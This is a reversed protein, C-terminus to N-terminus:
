EIIFEIRRNRTRDANTFVGGPGSPGFKPEDEGRGIAQIREAELGLSVLQQKVSNARAQSLQMNVDNAGVDDTHGVISLKFGQNAPQNLYEVLNKMNTLDAAQKNKCAERATPTKKSECKVFTSMGSEFEISQLDTLIKVTEVKPAPKCGSCNKTGAVTPCKDLHDPIGDRDVDLAVGSGDVQIKERKTAKESLQALETATWGCESAQLGSLDWKTDEKDFSDPVGDGDSDRKLAEASNGMQQELRVIKSMLDNIREDQSKNVALLEALKADNAPAAVPQHRTADYAHYQQLYTADWYRLDKKKGGLAFVFSLNISSYRDLNRGFNPENTNPGSAKQVVLADFGDTNLFHVNGQLDIHFQPSVKYSFGLGVPVVWVQGNARGNDTETLFQGTTLEKIRSSFSNFGLGAAAFVNWKRTIKPQEYGSFGMGSFNVVAQTSFEFFTTQSEVAGLFNLRGIYQAQNIEGNVGGYVMQGRLGFAPSFWHTLHAGLNYRLDGLEFFEARRVDHLPSTIGTTIGIAWPNTASNQSQAFNAAFPMCAMMFGVILLKM